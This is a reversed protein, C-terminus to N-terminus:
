EAALHRIIIGRRELEQVFKTGTMATEYRLCGAKMKGLAIENAYIATSIGTMQEMATFGTIDDHKQLIEVALKKPKGNKVGSAIARIIVLDKSTSNKLRPNMLACFVERPIANGSRVQIADNSWFGFDKFIRMYACHGPYRITKYEYNHVKGLFTEPATSAGGSTVFAEMTGLGEIQLTELETLTDILQLKGDRLVDAQDMYETVLGEINFVLKYNLPPEPYQPLGGCYLNVTETQDLQEMLYTGLNNVLGPALGTDPVLTVGAKHAEKDMGLTVRAVRTDGGMDVMHIKSKIALPAIKPHMWYPVCSLLVNGLALFPNLSKPDLADVQYAECINKGVLKNVRAASAEAQSLQFDGLHIKEASAFKALDYAASTGQMGAGLICFQSM